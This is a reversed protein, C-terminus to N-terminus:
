LLLFLWGLLLQWLCLSKCMNSVLVWATANNIHLTIVTKM